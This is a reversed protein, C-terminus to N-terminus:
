PPIKVDPLFGDVSLPHRKSPHWPNSEALWMLFNSISVPIHPFYWSMKVPFFSGVLHYKPRFMPQIGCFVPNIIMKIIKPRIWPNTYRLLTSKNKTNGDYRPLNPKLAFIPPIMELCSWKLHKKLSPAPWLSSWHSWKLNTFYSSVNVWIPEPFKLCSNFIAM